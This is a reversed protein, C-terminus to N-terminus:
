RCHRADCELFRRHTRSYKKDVLLLRHLLGEAGYQRRCTVGNILDAISSLRQPSNLGNPRIQNKEMKVQRAHFALFDDPM